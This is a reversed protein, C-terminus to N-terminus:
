FVTKCLMAVVTHRGRVNPKASGATMVELQAVNGVVSQPLVFLGFDKLLQVGVGQNGRIQKVYSTVLVELFIFSLNTSLIELSLKTTQSSGM